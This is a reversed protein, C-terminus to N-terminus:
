GSSRVGGGTYAAVTFVLWIVLTVFIAVPRISGRRLFFMGLTMGTLLIGGQMFYRAWNQIDALSSLVAYVLSIAGFFMLVGRLVEAIKRDTESEMAPLAFFKKLTKM